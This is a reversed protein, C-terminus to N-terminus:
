FSVTCMRVTSFINPVFLHVMVGRVNDYGNSIFIGYIYFLESDKYWFMGFKKASKPGYKKVADVGKNIM